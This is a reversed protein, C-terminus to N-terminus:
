RLLDPASAIAPVSAVVWAVWEELIQELAQNAADVGAGPTAERSDAHAQFHRTALVRSTRLDVLRSRLRIQMVGQERDRFDQAMELLETELRYHAPASTATSLITEFVGVQELATVLHPHILRAPEDAWRNSAYYRLEFRQKRYAMNTTALAAVSTPRAVHLTADVPAGVSRPLAAPDLEWATGTDDRPAQFSTCAALLASALLIFGYNSTVASRGGILKFETVKLETMKAPGLNAARRAM